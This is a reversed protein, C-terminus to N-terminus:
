LCLPCDEARETEFPEKKPSTNECQKGTSVLSLSLQQAALEGKTHTRATTSAHIHYQGAPLYLGMRPALKGGTRGPERNRVM